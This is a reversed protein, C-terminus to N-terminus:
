PSGDPIPKRIWNNLAGENKRQIFFYNVGVDTLSIQKKLTCSFSMVGERDNLPLSALLKALLTKFCM